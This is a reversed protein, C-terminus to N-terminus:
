FPSTMPTHAEEERAVLLYFPPESPACTRVGGELSASLPVAAAARSERARSVHHITARNLILVRSRPQSSGCRQHRPIGISSDVAAHYSLKCSCCGKQKCAFAVYIRSGFLLPDSSTYIPIRTSLTSTRDAGNKKQTSTQTVNSLNQPRTTYNQLPKM